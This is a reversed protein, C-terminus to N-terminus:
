GLALARYRELRAERPTDSRAEALSLAAAIAAVARQALGEAHEPEAIIADIVGASLLAEAGVGQERMMEAAHETDRYMIASAGEPPLPSLWGDHMALTVDAPLLALAGGGCGQGLILSVTPVQLGLLTTLTRAIEGAMAQEEAHRSLEAGPTDIVTVVAIGLSEAVKMARQAFRLSEPGMVHGGLPPQQHRDHVIVMARQGGVRTLAARIAPSAFGDGTGSLEVAAPSLAELIEGGGARRPERTREIAAWTDRGDLHAQPLQTAGAGSDDCLVDLVTRAGERLEELDLVGDIIGLRHLNEATQVGEPMPVGTTLEVVRPGLFGLLAEPEAFTLHGSSGWSAMVGGTTPNRLYVLFPLKAERHRTVAATISIMLAFAATGEQMRTGGSTPSVLLPLGEATAREIATILRRATAAGVSGALFQFESCVIAVRHGGVRAEGTVVAEDVGAKDVARELSALYEASAQRHQPPTDWSNFSDSDVVADILQHASVRVM